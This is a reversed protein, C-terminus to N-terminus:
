RGGGNYSLSSIYGTGLTSKRWGWPTDTRKINQQKKERVRSMTEQQVVTDSKTIYAGWTKSGGQVGTNHVNCLWGSSLRAIYRLEREGERERECM